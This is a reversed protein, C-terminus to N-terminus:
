MGYTKPVKEELLDADDGENVDLHYEPNYSPRWLIRVVCHKTEAIHLAENIEGINPGWKSAAMYFEIKKM